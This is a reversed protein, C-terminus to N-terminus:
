EHVENSVLLFTDKAEQTVTYVNRNARFRLDEANGFKEFESASLMIGYREITGGSQTDTDIRLLQHEEREGDIIFNATNASLLQWSDTSAVEIIMIYRGENYFASVFSRGTFGEHEIREASSQIVRNGTFEDEENKAISQGFLESCFSSLIFVGTLIILYKKLM